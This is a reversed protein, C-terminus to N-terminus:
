PNRLQRAADAAVSADLVRVLEDDSLKGASVRQKLKDLEHQDFTPKFLPFTHQWRKGGKGALCRTGPKCDGSIPYDWRPGFRYVAFYFLRGTYPDVKNAMMADYFVKHTQEWPRQKKECFYDHIVSAERYKGTMPSGVISWLPGPISAGNIKTGKPTTWIRKEPDVFTFDKMLEFSVGDPLVKVILDDKFQALAPQIQLAAGILLMLLFHRM